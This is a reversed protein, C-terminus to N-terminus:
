EAITKSRQKKSFRYVLFVNMLTAFICCLVVTDYGLSKAAAMAIGSYGFGMIMIISFQLTFFTARHQTKSANDMMMTGLTVLLAPFFTFYVSVSLYIFSVSTNGMAIFLIFVTAIVLGFTLYYLTQIRGLRQILLSACLASIVGVLSGYVKTVFGIDGLEWGADVLMPNLFSFASQGIPYILLLFFWAKNEGIFSKCQKLLSSTKKPNSATNFEPEHYSLLQLWAIVTLGALCWLSGKWGLWPYTMLLVGGGIVNGLLNSSFQLSNAYHRQKQDFIKCALGDIAVDQLSVAFAYVISILIILNLQNLFDLSGIVLLTLVMIVQTTLLWSRYQGQFFFRYRDILPAYFIKGAVPLIILNILALKDLPVGQKRLIAISAAMIFAIGLYQTTYISITLAMLKPPIVSTIKKM